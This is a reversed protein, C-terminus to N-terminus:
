RNIGSTYHFSLSYIHNTHHSIILIFFKFFFYYIFLFCVFFCFFLSLFFNHFFFFLCVFLFFFYHFFSIIFSFFIFLFCVLFCFFLSLFFNHFFFINPQKNHNFLCSLTQTHSWTVFTVLVCFYSCLFLYLLPM